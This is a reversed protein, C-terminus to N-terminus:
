SREGCRAPRRAHQSLMETDTSAVVLRAAALETGELLTGLDSRLRQELPAQEGSVVIDCWRLVRDLVGDIDRVSWRLVRSRRIRKVLRGGDRRGARVARAQRAAVPWGAVELFRALHDAADARAPPRPAGVTVPGDLWETTAGFLVDGHMSARVVLGTPWAPLVPGLTVDLSDLRLGDRDDATGAMPLGGVDGDGDLLAHPDRGSEANAASVDVLAAAGDDLRDRVDAGAADAPIGTRHCPHPMQSWVLDIAAGLEPGPQGLVVMIDADAPSRAMPWGRRDLEDELRWRTARAGPADVVLVSPFALAWRSLRRKVDM